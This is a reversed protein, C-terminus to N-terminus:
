LIIPVNIIAGPFEIPAASAPALPSYAQGEFWYKQSDGLKKILAPTDQGEFWYKSGTPNAAAM